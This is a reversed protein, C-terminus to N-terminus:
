KARGNPKGRRRLKGKESNLFEDLADLRGEWKDTLHKAWDEIEYIASPNVQYLRQQAHKEVRVLNTDRLIKLHQSIAQPSTSFKRYISSAPLQGRTALMEIISRRTPEGLATFTDM